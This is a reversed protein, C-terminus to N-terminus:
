GLLLTTLALGVAIAIFSVAAIARHRRGVASYYRGSAALGLLLVRDRHARGEESLNRLSRALHYAPVVLAFALGLQIYALM